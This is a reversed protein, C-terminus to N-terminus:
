RVTFREFEGTPTSFDVRKQEVQAYPQKSACWEIAEKVKEEEGEFVAEVTGDQRNRVWGTLGLSDACRKTNARFFVGQVLGEFVARARVKVIPEDAQASM